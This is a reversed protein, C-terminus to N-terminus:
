RGVPSAVARAAAAQAMAAKNGGCLRDLIDRRRQLALALQSYGSRQCSVHLEGAHALTLLDLWAEENKQKQEVGETPYEHLNAAKLPPITSFTRVNDGYRERLAVINHYDDTALFFPAARLRADLPRCWQCGAGRGAAAAPRATHKLQARLPSRSHGAPAARLM